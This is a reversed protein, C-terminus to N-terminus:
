NRILEKRNKSDKTEVGNDTNPLSPVETNSGEDNSSLQDATSIKDKSTETTSVESVLDQNKKNISTKAWEIEHVFEQANKSSQMSPLIRDMFNKHNKLLLQDDDPLGFYFRHYQDIAARIRSEFENIRAAAYYDNMRLMEDKEEQLAILKEYFPGIGPPHKVSKMAVLTCAEDMVDIAKDPLFRDAIYRDSLEVTSVLAENSIAVGHFSEFSKRIRSLIRITAANTPPEVLIPQFRRELAPDREIYKKYEDTTTAGVCRFKGRSLVPKLMNAADMTGEASGAGILTHIEDIFLITDPVDQAHEILLQLREEFEGRYRTGAVLAGLDVTVVSAELLQSPVEQNAIKQALGEVLATKGVGPEGIIVPNNKTRRCLVRIMRDLERERGILPELLGLEASMTLDRTFRNLEYLEDEDLEFYVRYNM